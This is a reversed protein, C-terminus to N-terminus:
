LVDGNEYRKKAEYPGVKTAYYELKACELVGVITNFKDYRDTAGGYQQIIRSIVYNLEGPSSIFGVLEDVRDDFPHRNVQPIYPM